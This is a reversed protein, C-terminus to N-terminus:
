PSPMRDSHPKRIEDLRRLDDLGRHVAAAFETDSIADPAYSSIGRLEDGDAKTEAAVGHLWGAGGVGM